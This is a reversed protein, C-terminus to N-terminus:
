LNPGQNAMEDADTEPPPTRQSASFFRSDPRFRKAPNTAEDEDDDRAHKEAILPEELFQQLNVMQAETLELDRGVEVLALFQPHARNGQYIPISGFEEFLENALTEKIDDWLQEILVERGPLEIMQGIKKAEQIKEKMTEIAIRPALTRLKMGAVEQNIVKIYIAPHCGIYNSIFAKFTGDPCKPNRDELNYGTITFILSLEEKTAFRPIIMGTCKSILAEYVNKNDENKEIADIRQLTTLAVFLKDGFCLIANYIGIRQFIDGNEQNPNESIPNTTVQMVTCDFVMDDQNQQNLNGDRQCEYLVHFIKQKREEIEPDGQNLGYHAVFWISAILRSLQIKSRADSHGLYQNQKLHLWARQAIENIILDSIVIEQTYNTIYHDIEELIVTVGDRSESAKAKIQDAFESWLKIAVDSTDINVSATHASQTPDVPQVRRHNEATAELDICLQILLEFENLEMAFPRQILMQIHQTLQRNYLTTTHLLVQELNRQNLLNSRAMLQILPAPNIIGSLKTAINTTLLHKSQLLELLKLFNTPNKHSMVIPAYPRWFPENKQAIQNFYFLGHRLADNPLILSRNLINQTLVGYKQLLSIFNPQYPNSLAQIYQLCNALYAETLPATQFLIYASEIAQVPCVYFLTLLLEPYYHTMDPAKTRILEQITRLTNWVEPTDVAAIFTRSTITKILKESLPFNLDMLGNLIVMSASITTSKMTKEFLPSLQLTKNKRKSILLNCRNLTGIVQVYEQPNTYDNSTQLSVSFIDDKCFLAWLERNTRLQVLAKAYHEPHRHQILAALCPSSVIEQLLNNEQLHIIGNLLVPYQRKDETLNLSEIPTSSPIVTMLTTLLTTRSLQNKTFELPNTQELAQDLLQSKETPSLQTSTHIQTICEVLDSCLYGEIHHVTGCNMRIYQVLNKPAAQLRSQTDLFIKQICTENRPLRNLSRVTGSKFLYYLNSNYLVIRPFEERNAATQAAELEENSNLKIVGIGGNFIREVYQNRQDVSCDLQYIQIIAECLDLPDIHSIIRNLYHTQFEPTDLLGAKKLIILGQITALPSYKLTDLLLPLYQNIEDLAFHQQFLPWVSDLKFNEKIILDVYIKTLLQHNNLHQLMSLTVSSDFCLKLQDFKIQQSQGNVTYDLPHDKLAIYTQVFSEPRGSRMFKPIYKTFPILDPNNEVLVNLARAHQIPTQLGLIARGVETEVHQIEDLLIVTDILSDNIKKINILLDIKAQANTGTFVLHHREKFGIHQEIKDHLQLLTLLVTSCTTETLAGSHTSRELSERIMEIYQLRREPNDQYKELNHCKEVWEMLINLVSLNLLSPNISILKKCLITLLDLNTVKSLTLIITETVLPTDKLTILLSTLCKWQNNEILTELIIRHEKEAIKKQLTTILISLSLSDNQNKTLANFNSQAFWRSKFLDQKQFELMCITIHFFHWNILTDFNSRTMLQNITLINLCVRMGIQPHIAKYMEFKTKFEEQAVQIWRTLQDFSDQFLLNAKKLQDLIKILNEDISFHYLQAFYHPTCLGIADLYGIAKMLPTKNFIDLFNFPPPSLSIKKQYLTQILQFAIANIDDITNQAEPQQKINSLIRLAAVAPEADLFLEFAIKQSEELAEYGALFTDLIQNM